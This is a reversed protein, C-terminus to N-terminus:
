GISVLLVNAQQLRGRLDGFMAHRQGRAFYDLKEQILHKADKLPSIFGFRRCPFSKSSQSAKSCGHFYRNDDNDDDNDFIM